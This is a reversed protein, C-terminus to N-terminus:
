AKEKSLEAVAGEPWYNSGDGYRWCEIEEDDDLVLIPTAWNSTLYVYTDKEPVPKGDEYILGGTYGWDEALGAYATGPRTEAIIKAAKMWDFTRPVDGRAFMGRLFAGVTGVDHRM